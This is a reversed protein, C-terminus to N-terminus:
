SSGLEHRRLREMLILHSATLADFEETNMTITGDEILYAGIVFTKPDNLGTFNLIRSGYARFRPDPGKSKMLAEIEGRTKVITLKFNIKTLLDAFTPSKYVFPVAIDLDGILTKIIDAYNRNQEELMFKYTLLFGRSDADNKQPTEHRMTKIESLVEQLQAKLPNQSDSLKQGVYDAIQLKLIRKVDPVNSFPLIGNYSPSKSIEDILDFTHKPKDMGPYNTSGKENAAYVSKFHLVETEVFTICPLGRAQATRFETHTVSIDASTLDGYRRGIVLILMQCAKISKYCSNAASDPSLYGVEGYESMVPNYGLELIQERIADRVYNLDRITSSIFINPIM